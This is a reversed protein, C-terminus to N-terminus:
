ASTTYTLTTINGLPDTITTLEGLSNYAFQTVSAATSNNPAPTTVTLLNGNSDYTNTTKHGLPDTVTLVENFSNYTYYKTPVDGGTNPTAISTLNGSNDYGRMTLNGLADTTQVALGSNADYLNHITGRSTCTSCGSGQADSLAGRRGFPQSTYSSANGLSDTVQAVLSVQFNPGLGTVNAAVVSVPGYSADDPVATVIQISSWSTVAASWGNFFVSSTGQTAGFNTGTITVVTGPPGSTPSLATITPTPLVTFAFANSAVGGVTVVVNGTTAGTPVPVAVSTGSWSTPTAATGNFTVTSAGQTSGFNAGAITVSAGVAASSPSLSTISPAQARTEGPLLSLIAVVFVLTLIRKGNLVRM